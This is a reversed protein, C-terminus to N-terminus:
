QKRLTFLMLLIHVAQTVIALIVVYVVITM